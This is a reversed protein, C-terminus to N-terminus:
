DVIVDGPHLCDPDDDGAAAASDACNELTRQVIERLTGDIEFALPYNVEHRPPTAAILEDLQASTKLGEPDSKEAQVESMCEAM